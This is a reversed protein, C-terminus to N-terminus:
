DHVIGMNPSQVFHTLGPIYAGAIAFPNILVAVILDSAALNAVFARGADNGRGTGARHRGSRIHKVALRTIVALNGLTGVVAALGLVGVYPAAVAPKGSFLSTGQGTAQDSINMEIRSQLPFEM